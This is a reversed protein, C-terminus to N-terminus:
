VLSEFIQSGAKCVTCCTLNLIDLSKRSMHTMQMNVKFHKTSPATETKGYINAHFVTETIEINLTSLCSLCVPINNLQNKHMTRVKLKASDKFLLYYNFSLM